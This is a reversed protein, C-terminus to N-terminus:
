KVFFVADRPAEAHCQACAPADGVAAPRFVPRGPQMARLVGELGADAMAIAESWAWWRVEPSEGDPPTPVLPPTTFGYRLDLHTHGRPGPHVDVHLLHSPEVDPTVRLGTEELVERMATDLLDEDPRDKSGTVSQWYEGGLDEGDARRILLVDLADTFIVVLVSEPIKYPKTMFFPRQLLARENHM